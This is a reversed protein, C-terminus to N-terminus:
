DDNDEGGYNHNDYGLPWPQDNQIKLEKGERRIIWPNYMNGQDLQSGGTFREAQVTAGGGKQPTVVWPNLYSGPPMPNEAWSPLILAALLYVMILMKKTM